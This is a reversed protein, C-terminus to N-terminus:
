QAEAYQSRTGHDKRVRSVRDHKYNGQDGAAEGESQGTSENM